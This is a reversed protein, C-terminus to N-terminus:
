SAYLSNEYNGIVVTTFKISLIFHSMSLLLPFFILFVFAYINKFTNTLIVRAWM